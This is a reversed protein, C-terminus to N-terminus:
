MVHTNATPTDAHPHMISTDLAVFTVHYVNHLGLADTYNSSTPLCKIGFYPYITHTHTHTYETTDLEKHGWSSCGAM